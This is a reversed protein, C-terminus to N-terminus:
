HMMGQHQLIESESHRHTEPTGITEFEIGEKGMIIIAAGILGTGQEWSDGIYRFTAQGNSDVEVSVLPNLNIRKGAPFKYKSTSTVKVKAILVVKANCPM